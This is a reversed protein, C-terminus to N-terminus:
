LAYLDNERVVGDMHFFDASWIVPPCEEQRRSRPLDLFLRLFLDGKIGDTRIMVWMKKLGGTLPNANCLNHTIEVICVPRDGVNKSNALLHPYSLYGEM